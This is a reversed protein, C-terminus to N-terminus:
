EVYIDRHTSGFFLNLIEFSITLAGPSSGPVVQNVYPNRQLGHKRDHFCKTPTDDADRSSSFDNMWDFVGLEEFDRWVWNRRSPCLLM